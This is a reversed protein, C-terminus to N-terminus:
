PAIVLEVILDDRVVFRSRLDATGGTFNGDLRSTVLWAGDGDDTAGLLTRTYQFQASASELWHRIRDLGEYRHGDDEVVAAEAFSALASETDRRDHAAQYGTVVTPLVPDSAPGADSTPQSDPM